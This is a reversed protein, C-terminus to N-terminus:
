KYIFHKTKKKLKILLYHPRLPAATSRRAVFSITTGKIGVRLFLYKKNEQVPSLVFRLTFKRRSFPWNPLKLVTDWM